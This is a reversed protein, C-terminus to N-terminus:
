LFVLTRSGSGASMIIESMTSDDRDGVNDRSDVAIRPNTIVVQGNQVSGAGTKVLFYDRGEEFGAPITFNNNHSDHLYGNCLSGTQNETDPAITTTVNFRGWVYRTSM